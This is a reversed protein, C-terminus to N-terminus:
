NFNINVILDFKIDYDEQEEMKRISEATAHARQLKLQKFFADVIQENHAKRKAEIDLQIGRAVGWAFGFAAVTSLATVFKKNM